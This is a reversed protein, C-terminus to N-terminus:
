DKGWGLKKNWTRRWERATTNRVSTSLGCLGKKRNKKGEGLKVVTEEENLTELETGVIKNM